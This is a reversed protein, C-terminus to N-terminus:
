SIKVNSFLSSSIFQIYSKLCFWINLIRGRMTIGFWILGVLLPPKAMRWWSVHPKQPHHSHNQTHWIFIQITNFQDNSWPVMTSLFTPQEDVRGPRGSPLAARRRQPVLLTFCGAMHRSWPWTLPKQINIVCIREYNWRAISAMAM